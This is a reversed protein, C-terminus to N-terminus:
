VVKAEWARRKQLTMTTEFDDYGLVSIEADSEERLNRGRLAKPSPLGYAGHILAVFRHWTRAMVVCVATKDNIDVNEFAELVELAVGRTLARYAKTTQDIQALGYRTLDTAYAGECQTRLQTFFEKLTIEGSLFKIDLQAGRTRARVRIDMFIRTNGDEEWLSALYILWHHQTEAKTAGNVAVRYRDRLFRIRTPSLSSKFGKM